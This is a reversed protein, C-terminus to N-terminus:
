HKLFIAVIGDNNNFTAPKYKSKSIYLKLLSNQFSYYTARSRGKPVKIMDFM